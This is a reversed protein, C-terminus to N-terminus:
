HDYETSSLQFANDFSSADVTIVTLSLASRARIIAAM